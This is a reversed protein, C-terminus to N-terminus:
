LFNYDKIVHHSPCPLRKMPKNNFAKHILFALSIEHAGGTNAARLKSLTLDYSYRLEMAKFKKWGIMFIMSENNQNANERKTPIGRYWIGTILHDYQFYVGADLQDAKGQFKYHVIPRISIEAQTSGSYNMGKSGTGKLPIRYGLMFSWKMPLPSHTDLLSQNPTNLHHIGLGAWLEDSYLIGGFSLDAYFVRDGSPLDNTSGQIFGDEDYQNLFTVDAYDQYRSVMSVQYGTRLSYKKNIHLQYAYQLAFETSRVDNSGQVDHFFYVGVGSQYDPFYKDYSAYTTLYKADLKPWQLRQHLVLRSYFGGGVFAPNNYVSTSYFQSFQADQAWANTFLFFALSLKLFFKKGGM